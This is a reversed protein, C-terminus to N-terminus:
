AIALTSMPDKLDAKIMATIDVGHKKNIHEIIGNMAEPEISRVYSCIGQMVMIDNATWKVGKQRDVIYNHMMTQLHRKRQHGVTMKNDATLMIGLNWNRGSSSGYRTKKDNFRFPASFKELIDAILKSIDEVKFEYRSSILFDDAYRTYIFKQELNRLAVSIESDIPIMMVNTIMPSLPSGQPLGGDLFALSLAKRLEKEGAETSIVESFPFVMSLQHMVFDLTTSGFFDHLDFKGFWRSENQQHKKVAAKTSRKRVYAFAATHYLAHFDFEFIDKLEYLATKLGEDPPDIRRLGGSHKPIYFTNYHSSMDDDFLNAHRSNFNALKWILADVNLVNRLREVPHESRYTKTATMDGNIVLPGIDEFSKFLFDQVSMQRYIPSM